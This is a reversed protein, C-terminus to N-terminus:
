CDVGLRQLLLIQFAAIRCDRLAIPDVCLTVDVGSAAAQKARDADVEIGYRYAKTSELLRSFALGDGICPDLAAFEQPYDLRVRIRDAEKLPLPYFGLKLRGAPRM